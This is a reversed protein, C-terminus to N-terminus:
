RYDICPTSGASEVSHQYGSWPTSSAVDITQLSPCQDVVGMQRRQISEQLRLAMELGQINHDDTGLNNYMMMMMMMMMM